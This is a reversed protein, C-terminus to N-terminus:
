ELESDDPSKNKPGHRGKMRKRIQKIMSHEDEDELKDGKSDLPQDDLMNDDYLEKKYADSNYNDYPSQGSEEANEEIDVTGGDAMMMRKRRIKDAIGGEAYKEPNDSSMYEDESPHPYREEKSYDPGTNYDSMYDEMPPRRNDPKAKPTGPSRNSESKANDQGAIGGEAYCGEMCQMRGGHACMGGEAYKEPNDSSMYESESPHPYKGMKSRDPGGNYTGMYDEMPPRTNDPKAKPTGPNGDKRDAEGGYAMKKKRAQRQVSFAIALDQARHEKGPHAEMETEINKKLAKKSKSHILPM